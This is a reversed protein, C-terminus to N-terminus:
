LLLRFYVSDFGHINMVIWFSGSGTETRLNNTRNQQETRPKLSFSFNNLTILGLLHVPIFSIIYGMLMVLLASGRFKIASHCGTPFTGTKTKLENSTPPVKRHLTIHECM